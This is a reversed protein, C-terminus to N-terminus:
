LLLFAAACCFILLTTVKFLSEVGTKISAKAPARNDNAPIKQTRLLVDAIKPSQCMPVIVDELSCCGKEPHKSAFLAIV